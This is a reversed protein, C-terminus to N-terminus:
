GVDPVLALVQEPRCRKTAMQRCKVGSSAGERLEHVDAQGHGFVSQRQEM